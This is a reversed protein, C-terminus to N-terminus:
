RVVFRVEHLVAGDAATLEVRWDGAAQANVTNRSFTRYGNGPNARVRLEIAQILREGRYWRHRVTTDSAAKLRTYFFLTGPDVPSGAPDCRWDGSRSLDRCLQADAM